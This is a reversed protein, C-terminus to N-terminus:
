GWEELPERWEWGPFRECWKERCDKVPPFLWGRKRKVRAPTCGRERLFHGIAHDTLWAAKPVSKRLCTLLGARTKASFSTEEEYDGSIAKGEFGDPSGPIEGTELLEVWWADLPPLSAAQQSLLANKDAPIKRPHFDGIDMALLDYLLAECGGNELQDYLPDFYEQERAHDGPVDVVFYRREGETAPVVWEENSAMIVHLMNPWAIVDRGKEEIALEPETILRKFNGEAAKDGPWYAEDAFLLMLGRLHANFRGSIQEGSSIQMGHNGFLIKLTNGITGKGCGKAGRFVLAVQARKSPNKVTWALWHLIYQFRGEDGGAVFRLHDMFLGCDGQVPKVGFGRWINLRGGVVADKTTPDLTLGEYQRRRPHGLWWEPLKVTKEKLEPDKPKSDITLYCHGWLNRFEHFQMTVVAERDQHKEFFGVLTRSKERVVFFKENMKKLAAIADEKLKARRADTDAETSEEGNVADVDEWQMFPMEACGDDTPGKAEAQPRDGRVYEFARLAARKPDKQALYHASVKNAPNLLIGLIQEQSYGAELLASAARIGDGSRDEGTPQNILSWIPSIASVGLDDLTLLKIDGPPAGPAATSKSWNVKPFARALDGPTYIAENGGVYALSAVVPKRGLARKKADPWNVTGPVRLLRDINFCNDAGLKKAISYNIDEVDNCQRPACTLQWLPQLGNGSDIVLSPLIDLALLHALASRKDMAVAGKPPDVDAHAFRAAVIDAKTPKKSLGDRTINVTWYCSRGVANERAVWEAADSAADGFYRGKIKDFDGDPKDPAISVVHIASVVHDSLFDEIVALDPKPEVNQHFSM